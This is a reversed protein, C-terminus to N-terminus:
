HREGPVWGSYAAAERVGREALGGGRKAPALSAPAPGGQGARVGGGAEPLPDHRGAPPQRGRVDRRPLVKEVGRVRGRRQGRRDAQGGAM